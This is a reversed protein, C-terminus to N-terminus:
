RLAALSTHVRAFTADDVCRGDHRLALVAAGVVGDTVTVVSPDAGGTRLVEVVRRAVLPQQAVISGGLVLPGTIDPVVVAALTAVLADSADGVIHRAVDDGMSEAEFVLPAFRALEVPRM